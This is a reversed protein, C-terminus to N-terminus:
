FVGVLFGEVNPFELLFGVVNSLFCSIFVNLVTYKEEPSRKLYFLTIKLNHIDSSWIM